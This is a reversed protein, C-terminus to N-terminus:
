PIPKPPPPLPIELSAADYRQAFPNGPEVIIPLTRQDFLSPPASSAAAGRLATRPEIEKRAAFAVPLAGVARRSRSPSSVAEMASIVGKPVALDRLTRRDDASLAFAQGRDALWEEVVPADLARSADAVDAPSLEVATSARASVVAATAPPPLRRVVEGPIGALDTLAVFQITRVSRRRGVAYGGVYAFADIYNMSYLGTWRQPAGGPCTYEARTYIRREDASWTARETGSCAGRTQSVDVGSTSIPRRTAISDHSISLMEVTNSDATPAICIAPGVMTGIMTQWCGVYPRWRADIRVTTDQQASALRAATVSLVLLVTFRGIRM